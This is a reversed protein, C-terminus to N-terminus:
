LGLDDSVSKMANLSLEVFEELTLGLETISKIQERNAGRAFSKEKFRNLVFNTDIFALKKDPHILASAVILGTIPDAAYIAREIKTEIKKKGSHALIADLIEKPLNYDKLIDMAVISHKEPKDYTLDYDIDHLLGALGWIREDENLRRALERMVAEVAIMHKVLNKNKVHKKVLALAEERDM